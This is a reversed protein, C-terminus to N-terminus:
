KLKMMNKIKNIHKKEDALIKKYSPENECSLLNAILKNTYTEVMSEELKLTMKLADKLTLSRRTIKGSISSASKLTKNIVEMSPTSDMKKLEGTLKLSKVDKFFSLHEIEDEFMSKWFEKKEPFKKMLNMYISSASKEVNLFGNIFDNKGM